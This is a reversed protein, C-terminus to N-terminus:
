VRVVIMAKLYTLFNNYRFFQYGLNFFDRPSYILKKLLFKPRTYFSMVAERYVKEMDEANSTPDFFIRSTYRVFNEWGNVLLRDKVSNYLPTSPYPIVTGIQALDPELSNVFKMTERITEPTDGPLGILVFCITKIKYARAVKVAKRVQDLTIQKHISDLIDQNGSEVGFSLSYCGTEKMKKILRPAAADVRIGGACSWPLILDRKILEDCVSIAYNEDLTFNDDILVFEKIKYKDKLYQVEDAVNKPDRKRYMKGFIGSFCFTCNYPCGRTTMVPLYPHNDKTPNKYHEIPFGDWSPFTLSDLDKVLAQDENHVIKGGKIYSIGKIRSIPKNGIEKFTIETEGRLVIDVHGSKLAEEPLVTPHPGGLLIKIKKSHEKIERAIGLADKIQPTTSYIGVMDPEHKVARRSITEIGINEAHGDVIFVKHGEERLVGAVYALGLPPERTSFGHFNPNILVFKM